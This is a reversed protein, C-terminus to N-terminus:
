NPRSQPWLGSASDGLLEIRAFVQDLYDQRLLYRSYPSGDLTTSGLAERRIYERASGEGAWHVLGIAGGEIELATVGHRGTACGSNFMCPILLGREEYLSRSLAYKMDRDELRELEIRYIGVLEAIKRRREPEALSYERLQEEIAWRLSDYKTLSEFLPRHTHGSISVIGLRKSARYIRREQKFKHRSDGSISTNRIRLPKALYRVVFDSIYDRKVFFRSAQHGHFVFIRRGRRELVLGHLLEFPYDPETLLGLDHNGVIKRLRGERAFAHFIDYLESWASRIEPMRFKSLDEVDGDLVLTYGREFYWRALITLVLDRNWELDDRRGGDGMHFDSFFVYRSADDLRETPCAAILEEFSSLFDAFKM